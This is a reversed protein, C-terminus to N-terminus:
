CLYGKKEGPGVAKCSEGDQTIFDNDSLSLLYHGGSGDEADAAIVAFSEWKENLLADGQAGGNRVGFRALQADVNFSLWPCYTAAVIDGKLVGDRSAVQGQAEDARSGLVNTAASIDIVDANRYTSRTSPAGHGAGSDRALLLFQTPSIYHLESQAAVKSSSPLIPLPITYEAALTINPTSPSTTTDVSYQLMRTYRRKSSSKGGDQITASQLVAYLSKGDPSATLGELGQNNARGSTPDEPSITTNPAYIPPSAASFSITNNRRPLFAQPPSIAQLMKGPASFQYLYTAYEDSIWYTSNAGLM